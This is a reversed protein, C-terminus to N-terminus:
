FARIARFAGSIVNQNTLGYTGTPMNATNATIPAITGTLPLDFHSWFIEADLQLNKVPFWSTRSGIQSVRVDFNCNSNGSLAIGGGAGAARQAATCLQANQIDNYDFAAYGGFLSTRWTGPVWWHEYSGQFGYSKTKQIQTSGGVGAANFTGDMIAGYGIGGNAVGALAQPNDYGRLAILTPTPAASGSINIVGDGYSGIFAISDGVGTPLNKIQIGGVVGFGWTDDPRGNTYSNATGVAGINYYSPNIHRVIAGVYAGGWAQNLTINGVFDPIYQGSTSTSTWSGNGITVSGAVIAGGFPSVFATNTDYLAGKGYTADAIGGTISLGNGLDATYTAQLQGVQAATDNSYGFLGATLMYQGATGSFPVTTVPAAKGLTFGAFQIFINSPVLSQTNNTLPTNFQSNSTNFFFDQNVFTRLVGYETAVRTDFNINARARQFFQDNDRTGLGANLVYGQLHSGRVGPGFDAEYSAYGGIKLCTDTGPIYFFGAGYLSCIKVYEVAKAKVPLDAAQAGGMAVLGAASGLILSKISKM